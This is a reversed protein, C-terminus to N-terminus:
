GLRAPPLLQAARDLLRHAAQEKPQLPLQEDARDAAVITLQNESAGFGGPADAGVLNAAVLDVRKKLLKERARQELNATEAAFAVVVAPRSRGSAISQVIDSTPSLEVQAVGDSRHIKGPVALPQFDAVAAAMVLMDAGASVAAVAEGMETATGAYRYEIGASDPPSPTSTVLTVAAGRDRAAHAIAIGMKGSSRNSIVRVEDIPESTGGATVVVRRGALDGGRGLGWRIHGVLQVPELMRGPGAAGSAHRGEAPGVVSAGDQRLQAVNRQTAPHLWMASEMAPAVLLPAALALATLGILNHAAGHALTALTNASAPAVIMLDAAAAIELHPFRGADANFPESAVTGDTLARFTTATIFERAGRSLIVDVRAGAQVLMSVLTAAKYAAVSGCVGVVVHAGPLAGRLETVGVSPTASM